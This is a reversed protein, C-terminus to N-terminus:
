RRRQLSAPPREPSTAGFPFPRRSTNGALQTQCKPRAGQACHGPTLLDIQWHASAWLIVLLDPIM